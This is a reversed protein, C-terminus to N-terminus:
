YEIEANIQEETLPDEDPGGNTLDLYESMWATNYM